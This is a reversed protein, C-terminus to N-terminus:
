FKAAKILDWLPFYIGLAMVLIIGGVVSLLVPEMLENLRKIDYDIEGEYFHAVESLIEDLHGSEEGVEIMQIITPFFLKSNTAAISINQGQEIGQKMIAVQRMFFENGTSQGALKIGNTVSLGARLILSFTWCFQSIIIRKQIDGIVPIKLKAKDWYYRLTTSAKLLQPIGVLLAIAIGLLVPWYTVMFNSTLMIIKTAIPLDLKYASFIMSFKPIVFINMVVMAIIAGFFVIIPYRATSVLRRKNTIYQELFISIQLLSENLHGTNEGVEIISTVVHSFIKPHKRLADSFTQGAAVDDAIASLADGFVRTTTSQALQNLGKIIPVGAALLTSLQRCFSMIEETHISMLGISFMYSDFFNATRQEAVNIQLPTIGTKQLYTVVDDVSNAKLLKTIISGSTDRGKYRYMPM